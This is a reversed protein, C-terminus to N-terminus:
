AVARMLHLTKRASWGILCISFVAQVTRLWGPTTTAAFVVVGLWLLGFVAVLTVAAWNLGRIWM